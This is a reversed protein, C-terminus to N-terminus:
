KRTEQWREYRVVLSTFSDRASDPLMRRPFDMWSQFVAQDPVLHLRGEILEYRAQADDLWAADSPDTRSGDYIIGVRAHEAKALAAVAGLAAQWRGGGWVVDLHLGALPEGMARRYAALWQQLDGHWDPAVAPPVGVPEIDYISVGPYVTRLAKLKAAAEQALEAIPKICPAIKASGKWAHGYWLPEDMRVAALDAHLRKLRLALETLDGAPGHGEIGLGCARTAVLPTVQMSLRLHRRRLGDLVVALTADSSDHVFRKSVEFVALHEAAADWPASPQFLAMYDNDPFGWVQRWPPETASFWIEAPHTVRGGAAMAASALAGGCVTAVM